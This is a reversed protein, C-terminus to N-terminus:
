KLFLPGEEEKGLAVKGNCGKGKETTISTLGYDKQSMSCKVYM